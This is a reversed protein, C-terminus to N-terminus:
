GYKLITWEPYELLEILKAEAKTKSGFSMIYFDKTDYMFIKDNSILQIKDIWVRVIHSELFYRRYRSELSGRLTGNTLEVYETYDENMM